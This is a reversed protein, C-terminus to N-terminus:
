QKVRQPAAQVQGELVSLAREPIPDAPLGQPWHRRARDGNVRFRGQYGGVLYYLGPAIVSGWGDDKSLLYVSVQGAEPVPDGLITMGSYTTEDSPSIKAGFKEIAGGARTEDARSWVGGDSLVSLLDGKKVGGTWSKLVRVTSITRPFERYTVYRVQEVRGRVVVDARETESALNSYPPLTRANVNVWRKVARLDVGPAQLTPKQTSPVPSETGDQGSPRAREETGRACGGGAVALALLMVVLIVRVVTGRV